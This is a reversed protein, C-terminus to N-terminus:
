KVEFKVFVEDPLEPARMRLEFRHDLLGTGPMPFYLFDTSYGFKPLTLTDRVISSGASVGRTPSFRSPYRTFTGFRGEIIGELEALNNRDLDLFEYGEILERPNSCPYQKGTEDVLTFSERTLTLQRLGRNAVAIELPIYQEKERYRTARTDVILSVLNGEEIYAFTSLKRDLGGVERSAATPRSVCGTAALGLLLAAAAFPSKV